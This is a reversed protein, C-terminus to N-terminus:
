MRMAGNTVQLSPRYSIACGTCQGWEDESPEYPNRKGGNSGIFRLRIGGHCETM